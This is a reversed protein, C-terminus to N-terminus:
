PRVREAQPIRVGRGEHQWCPKEILDGRPSGLPWRVKEGSGPREARMSTEQGVIGERGGQADDTDTQAENTTSGSESRGGKEDARSDRLELPQISLEADNGV